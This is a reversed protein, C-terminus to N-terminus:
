FQQPAPTSYVWLWSGPFLDGAQPKSGSDTSRQSCCEERETTLASLPLHKATHPSRCLPCAHQGKTAGLNQGEQGQDSTQVQLGSPCLLEGLWVHRLPKAGLTATMESITHNELFGLHNGVGVDVAREDVRSELLQVVGIEDTDQLVHLPVSDRHIFHDDALQLKGGLVWGGKVPYACRARM